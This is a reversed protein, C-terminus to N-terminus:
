GDPGRTRGRVTRVIEVAEAALRKVTALDGTAVTRKAVMWSGGCALVTSLGLYTALTTADIGGTPVFRVDPYPGAVAALYRVGGAAEAPFFKFTTIGHVLGLEIETPTSVGPLIPVGREM